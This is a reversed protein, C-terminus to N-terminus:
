NIGRPKKKVTLSVHYVCRCKLTHGHTWRSKNLGYSRYEYISKLIFQSM